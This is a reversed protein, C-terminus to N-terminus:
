RCEMFWMLDECKGSFKGRKYTSYIRNFVVPPTPNVPLRAFFATAAGAKGACGLSNALM